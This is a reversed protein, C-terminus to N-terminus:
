IGLKKQFIKEKGAVEIFDNELGSFRISEKTGLCLFGGPCLSDRFLQIVRNQLDRNFYILVNRCIILHMEGFIGDTVLNHEAFIVKKKLGSDMVVADYKATYYDALSGTGGGKQYNATFGKISDIPFIGDSAKRLTQKNFDTAYIQARDYLGEEKLLIAMSYVEEGSACGAHWVKFFPYTGLFPIVERRLASYFYPDRFMESVTISLDLLLDQFFEPDVLLQHQMHSISELGSLALRRLVRRRLHAQAYDRFDFGYRLFIAELLLTIEIHEIKKELEPDQNM